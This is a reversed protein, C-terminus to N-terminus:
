RHAKEKIEEVDAKVSQVATEPTPPVARSLRARGLLAAAIAAAM